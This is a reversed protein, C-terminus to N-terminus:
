SLYQMLAKVAMCTTVLSSGESTSLQMMKPLVSVGKSLIAKIIKTKDIKASSKEEMLSALELLMILTDVPKKTEEVSPFQVSALKSASDSSAMFAYCRYFYEIDKAANFITM